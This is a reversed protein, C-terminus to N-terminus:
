NIGNRKRRPPLVNLLNEELSKRLEAIKQSRGTRRGRGRFFGVFNKLINRDKHYRDKGKAGEHTQCGGRGLSSTPPLRLGSGNKALYIQEPLRM